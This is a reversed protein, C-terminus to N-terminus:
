MELRWVVEEAVSGGMEIKGSEDDAREGTM